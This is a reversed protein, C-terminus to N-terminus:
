VRSLVLPCILLVPVQYTGDFGAFAQRIKCKSLSVAPSPNVTIDKVKVM